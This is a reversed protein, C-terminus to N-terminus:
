TIHLEEHISEVKILFTAADFQVPKYGGRGRDYM